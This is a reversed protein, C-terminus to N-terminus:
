PTVAIGALLLCSGGALLGVVVEENPIHLVNSLFWYGVYNVLIYETWPLSLEPM